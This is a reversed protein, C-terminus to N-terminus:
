GMGQREDVSAFLVGHEFRGKDLEGVLVELFAELRGSLQFGVCLSREVSSEQVGSSLLQRLSLGVEALEALGGGRCLSLKRGRYGVVSVSVSISVSISVM